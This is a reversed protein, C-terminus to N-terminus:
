GAPLLLVTDKGNANGTDDVSATSISTLHDAVKSPEPTLGLSIM